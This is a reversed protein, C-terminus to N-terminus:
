RTKKSKATKTLDSPRMRRAPVKVITISRPVTEGTRLIDRTEFLTSIHPTGESNAAVLDLVLLFGLRISM